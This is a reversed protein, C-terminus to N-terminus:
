RVQLSENYVQKLLSLETASLNLVDESSMLNGGVLSDDFGLSHGIAHRLIRNATREDTTALDQNITIRGSHVCAARDWTLNITAPSQGHYPSKSNEFVLMGGVNDSFRLKGMDFFLVQGANHGWFDLANQIRVIDDIGMDEAFGVLIPTGCHRVSLHTDDIVPASRTAACATLVVFILYRM